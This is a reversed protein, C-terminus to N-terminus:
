CMGAEQKSRRLSYCQKCVGRVGLHAAKRTVFEELTKFECCHFCRLKGNVLKKKNSGSKLKLDGIELHYRTHASKTPFLMLNDLENKSKDGDIHHVVEKKTLKRGIHKEMVLRHEGVNKGNVKRSKYKNLVIIQKSKYVKIFKKM